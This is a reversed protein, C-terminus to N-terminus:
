SPRQQGGAFLRTLFWAEMAYLAIVYGTFSWAFPVRRLELGRLAVAVYAGFFLVKIMFARIMVNMVREPAVAHMREIVIWSACAAVLPGAMGVFAEPNATGLTVSVVFWSGLSLAAMWVLATM